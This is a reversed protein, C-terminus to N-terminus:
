HNSCDATLAASPLPGHVIKEITEDGLNAHIPPHGLFRDTDNQSEKELFTRGVFNL